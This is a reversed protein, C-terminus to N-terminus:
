RRRRDDQLVTLSDTPAAPPPPLRLERVRRTARRVELPEADYPTLRAVPRDRDMVTLTRGKRVARLHASLRAKLDAIGVRTM